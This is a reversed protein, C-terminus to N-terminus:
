EYLTNKLKKIEAYLERQRRPQATSRMLRELAAIQALTKARQDDVRIQETLTNGEAVDISGISAVINDWVTDLNLGSLSIAVDVTPQWQVTILKTHYVALQAKDEYRLVFVIRQPILKAVLAINKPNFDHRKLLVEVVFIAKVENGEAVAPLSQPAILNAFDLRAVDADFADRQAQKLEFKAYIQAKPLPRRVETSQPLGYM